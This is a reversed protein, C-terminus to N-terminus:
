SRTPAPSPSAPTVPGAPPPPVPRRPGYGPPGFRGPPRQDYRSHRFGDGRGGFHHGVVLGVMGGIMCGILIGVVGVLVIPVWM